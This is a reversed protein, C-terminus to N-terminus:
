EFLYWNIGFMLTNPLGVYGPTTFYNRKAGNSKALLQNIYSYKIWFSFNKIQGNVFPNIIPEGYTKRIKQVSFSNIEPNYQQAYYSDVYALELGINFNLTMYKSGFYLKPLVAFKPMSLATASDVTHNYDVRFDLHFKKYSLQTELRLTNVIIKKGSDIQVMNKNEDLYIYNSLETRSAHFLINQKAIKKFVDVYITRNITSKFGGNSWRYNNNYLYAQLMTPSQVKYLLGAKAFSTKLSFDFFFDKNKALSDYVPKKYSDSTACSTLKYEALISLILKNKLYRYNINAGLYYEHIGSRYLTDDKITKGTRYTKGYVLRHKAYGAYDFASNKGFLGIRNETQDFRHAYETNATDYYYPRKFMLENLSDVQPKIFINTSCRKFAAEHFIGFSSDNSIKYHHYVRVDNQYTNTYSQNLLASPFLVSKYVSQKELNNFFSTDTKISDLIYGGNEFQTLWFLTSNGVFKYRGNKSKFGGYLALNYLSTLKNSKNGDGGTTKITTARKVDIGLFSTPTIPTALNLLISNEGNAGQVYNIRSMPSHPYMMKYSETNWAYQEFANFGQQVGIKDNLVPYLPRSASAILGLNQFLNGKVFVGEYNQFQMFTTDIDEKNDLFFRSDAFSGLKVSKPSYVLVTDKLVQAWASVTM